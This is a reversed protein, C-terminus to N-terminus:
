CKEMKIWIIIIKIMSSGAKKRGNPEMQMLGTGPIAPSAGNTKYMGGWSKFYYKGDLWENALMTGDSKLYYKNGKYTLWGSTYKKGNGDFYYWVNNVKAWANKYAAGWSRFYYTNNLWENFAM